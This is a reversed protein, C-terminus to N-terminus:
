QTSTTNLVVPGLSVVGGVTAPTAGGFLLAPTLGEVSTLTLKLSDISGAVMLVDVRSSRLESLVSTALM